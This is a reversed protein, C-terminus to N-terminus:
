VQATLRAQEAALDFDAPPYSPNIERLTELLLHAVAWDRYWKHDAPVVHWPAAATSCRTLLTEYAEVYDASRAREDVDNPNYKWRKEPEALRDRLRAMQEEPSVHLMVKLVHVGSDRLGQEFRNIAAYRAMWTRRPVLNHVRVVLVDEYHSRNFMTIQGPSPVQKRIRWLFDHRREEDTPKVFAAYRQWMPSLMGLVNKAVGDKGSCDTGQVVILLSDAAGATSQAHLRTQLDLLEDALESLERRARGKGGKFGPTAGADHAALEIATGPKVQLLASVEPRKM